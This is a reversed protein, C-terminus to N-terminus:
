PMTVTTPRYTFCSCGGDFAFYRAVSPGDHQAKSFTSHGDINMTSAFSSGTGEVAGVVANADTRGGDTKLATEYLFLAECLNFAFSYDAATKLGIGHEGVMAICRNQAANRSPWQAPNVDQVPLWGFGYVNKVQTPPIQNAITAANALSSMVYKPHWNQSEAISAALFLAPGESVADIMLTDVGAARFQLMISGGQGAARGADAEGRACDITFTSAVTLGKAAIYPKTVKNWADQTGPCADLLVGLKSAKTIVGTALGGDIKVQSRREIRPTSLAILLPYQRLVGADPINFSTSLHPISKKQLCGEFAPVFDFAYGLVAVVHHDQTFKACAAEFTADWSASGTDTDAYVPVIKRGAVGGRGNMSAVIADYIDAETVTNGLSAGVAAANSVATRVIGIEIPGTTAAASSGARTTVTRNGGQVVAGGTANIDTPTGAAVNSTADGAVTTATAGGLEDGAGSSASQRAGPPVTSGCAVLGLAMLLLLTRRM